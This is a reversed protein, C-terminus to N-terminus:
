NKKLRELYIRLNKGTKELIGECKERIEWKKGFNKLKNGFNEWNKGLFLRWKRTLM